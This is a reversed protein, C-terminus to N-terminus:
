VAAATRPRRPWQPRRSGFGRVRERQVFGSGAARRPGPLPPRRRATARRWPSRGGGGSGRGGGSERFPGATRARGRAGRAGGAPPSPGPATAVGSARPLRVSRRGTRRCGASQVVSGPKRRKWGGLLPSSFPPTHRPLAFAGRVGGLERRGALERGCDAAAPGSRGVGPSPACYRALAAQAAEPRGRVGEPPPGLLPGTGGSRVKAIFRREGRSSRAPALTWPCLRFVSTAGSRPRLPPCAGAYGAPGQSEWARRLEAAEGAGAGSKSSAM